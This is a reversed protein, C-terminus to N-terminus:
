IQNKIIKYLSDVMEEESFSNFSESDKRSGGWAGGDQHMKQITITDFYKEVRSYVIYLYLCGDIVKNKKDEKMMKGIVDDKFDVFDYGKEKYYLSEEFLDKLLVKLSDKSCENISTTKINNLQQTFPSNEKRAWSSAILEGNSRVYIYLSAALIAKEEMYTKMEDTIIGM